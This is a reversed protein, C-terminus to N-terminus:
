YFILLLRPVLDAAWRGSRTGQTVQSPSLSGGGVGVRRPSLGAGGLPSVGAGGASCRM